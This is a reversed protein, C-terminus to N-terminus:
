ISCKPCDFSGGYGYVQKCRKEHSKLLNLKVSKHCISCENGRKPLENDSQMSQFIFKPRSQCQDENHYNDIDKEDDISIVEQFDQSNSKKAKEKTSEQSVPTTMDRINKVKM